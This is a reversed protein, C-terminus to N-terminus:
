QWYGPGLYNHIVDRTVIAKRGNVQGTYRTQGTYTPEMRSPRLPEFGGEKSKM